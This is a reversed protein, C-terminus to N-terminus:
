YQRKYVDLHTYSVPIPFVQWSSFFTVRRLAWIERWPVFSTKNLIKCSVRHVAKKFLNQKDNRINKELFFSESLILITKKLGPILVQKLLTQKLINLFFFIIYSNNVFYDCLLVFTMLYIIVRLWWFSTISFLEIDWNQICGILAIIKTGKETM